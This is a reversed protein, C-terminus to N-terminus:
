LMFTRRPFMTLGWLIEWCASMARPLSFLISPPQLCTGPILTILTDLPAAEVAIPVLYSEALLAALNYSPSARLEIVPGLPPDAQILKTTGASFTPPQTNTLLEEPCGTM